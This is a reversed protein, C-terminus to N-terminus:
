FDLHWIKKATMKNPDQGRAVVASVAVIAGGKRRESEYLLYMNARVQLTAPTSWIMQCCFLTTKKGKITGHM